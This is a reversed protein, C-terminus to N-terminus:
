PLARLTRLLLCLHSGDASFDQTLALGHERSEEQVQSVLSFAMRMGGALLLVILPYLLAAEVTANGQKSLM